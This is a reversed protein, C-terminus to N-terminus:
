EIKKMLRRVIREAEKASKIGKPLIEDSFWGSEAVSLLSDIVSREKKTLVVKKNVPGEM